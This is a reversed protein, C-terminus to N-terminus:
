QHAEIYKKNMQLEENSSIYLYLQLNCWKHYRIHIMLNYNKRQQTNGM